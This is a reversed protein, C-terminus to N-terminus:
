GVRAKGKSTIVYGKKLRRLYGNRTLQNLWLGTSDLTEYIVGGAEGNALGGEIDDRAWPEAQGKLVQLVHRHHDRWKFDDEHETSAKTAEIADHKEKVLMRLMAALSLNYHEAVDDFRKAEDESVRFNIQKDRAMEEIQVM